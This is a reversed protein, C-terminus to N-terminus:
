FENVLRIHVKANSFTDREGLAISVGILGIATEVQMGIGYGIRKLELLILGEEPIDPQHIYAADLFINFFSMDGALFRYEFNMWILRSGLFQGEKYGRLTTAGGLRLLDSVDLRSGKVDRIYLSLALVQKELLMIFYSLDLKLKQVSVKSASHKGLEEVRKIGAYYETSYLIGETPSVPMDRSDYLISFGFDNTRSKPLIKEGYGTSPYIDSYSYLTGLSFEENIMSNLSIDYKNKIFTTDQKRQFFGVQLNVPYSFLWPELYQFEIEQSYKTEKYWRTGFKRGTGFLNRFQLKVMGVIYGTSKSNQEPMYGVMGDFNNYNGETVKILLGGDGKENLYLEPLSVQSFLQLRDLRRKIKKLLNTEYFQHWSLRAERVIVYDKTTKNGEVTIDSIRLREGEDVEIKVSVSVEEQADLLNVDKVKIKALPFGEKDYHQLMKEIDLELTVPVFPKGVGATMISLLDEMKFYRCGEIELNRLVFLKGENLHFVIDISGKISDKELGVSDIQINLYANDIYMKMIKRIDCTLLSDLFVSGRKISLESLLRTTSFFRNGEFKISSVKFVSAGNSAISYNTFYFLFFLLLFKDLLRNSLNVPCM